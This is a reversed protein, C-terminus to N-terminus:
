PRATTTGTGLHRNLADLTGRTAAEAETHAAAVGYRAVGDASRLSVAVAPDREDLSRSWHPSFPVDLGLEALAELTAEVAATRADPDMSRRGITRRDGLALHVEIESGPLEIVALVRVRRDDRSPAPAPREQPSAGIVEVVVPREFHAAAAETARAQVEDADTGEAVGVQVVVSEDRDEFGVVMVGACQRLELELSDYAERLGEMQSVDGAGSM